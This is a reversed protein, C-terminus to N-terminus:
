LDYILRPKHSTQPIKVLPSIWIKKLHFITALNFIAVHGAQLQDALDMRVFYQEKIESSHAGQTIASYLETEMMGCTMNIPIGHTRM